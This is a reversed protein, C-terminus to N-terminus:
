SCKLYKLVFRRTKLSDGEFYAEKSGIRVFSLGSLYKIIPNITCVFRYLCIETFKNYFDFIRTMFSFFASERNSIIVGGSHISM